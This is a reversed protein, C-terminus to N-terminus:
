VAPAPEHRPTQVRPGSSTKQPSQNQRRPRILGTYRVALEAMFLALALAAWAPWFSQLSWRAPVDRARPEGFSGGTATTLQRLANDPTLPGLHAPYGMAVTSQTTMEGATAAFRYRGATEPYYTAAYQNPAIRELPLPTEGDEPGVSLTPILGDAAGSLTLNATFGDGRRIIDLALDGREVAPLFQRIAQSWLAPYSPMAQWQQSWPGAAETTLALVQGAGYRWSALLPMPEGKSDPVVMSLSAEPKPTTLVFGDIPPMQAPLGRLFPEDRAAWLPQTTGQEIPSGSLLMAEQSLISPLAAFDDTAHFTGGGLRAIREILTREAGKGISVSSVTIGEARIDALLGPFDAPQSLGDTMVIIHRAPTEVGRLMDLAAKLGPYISTGGGPDVNSLAASAIAPDDIRQLPLVINPDSDFVVIGVQSNRNLLRVAALTAQKAIDLRTTTAGVPQQMSGSRDLVFVLTAEPADRPVRSSLPSARDLPTELYGGPGFSNPGGLILLGLGQEAVASELLEQQQTTLAIAPVDLLVAGDFGKWDELKYPAQKPELAAGTIGQSTLWDLFAASRMPDNAIVAVKGAPRADIITSLTNNAPDTDDATVTLTYEAAGEAMDSLMTEVRNDGATLAAQQEVLVVGEREFRLTVRTETTAHVIGTLAVTDGAYVPTPAELASVYLADDTALAPQADVFIQRETLAAALAAMAAPETGTAGSVIIRGPEGWPLSAAALQIAAPIAGARAPSTADTGTISPVPAAIITAEGATAPGGPALVTATHEGARQWPIGIDLLALTVAVLALARLALTLRRRTSLPNANRLGEAQLFREPGRGSIIAEAILALIVLGLLIPWLALPFAAPQPLDESAALPLTPAAPNIALLRTLNGASLEYLGAQEPVFDAAPLPAPENPWDLRRITGGAFRADLACREGITCNPQLQGQPALGLWHILNAVFVPLGSQQPWNSRRPDFALRIDYGNANPTATILPVEGARLLVDANDAPGIAQAADISLTSWAIDHMLPHASAVFTPSQASLPPLATGSVGANGIWLVNSEPQRAVQRNDVVVLGFQSLDGPLGEAQYIAAGDIAKLATLLPQEGGGVYLIDLPAPEARTVFWASNDFLAADDALAVSVIGPGPLNLNITFSKTQPGTDQPAETATSGITKRTWELPTAKADPAYSVILETSPLDDLQVNGSLTWRNPENQRPALQATLAANPATNGLTVTEQSVDALGAQPPAEDSYIVLRTQEGPHLLSQVVPLLAPWDAAGDSAHISAVAGAIAEGGLPHRAVLPAATGALSILSIKGGSAPDRMRDLLQAKALSLRDAGDQMTQMSGSRDVVFIWHDVKDGRFLLPQALAAALAALALLQLLLAWSPRPWQLIRNRRAQGMGIERWIRLSPVNITQRRRIHFALIILGLSLLILSLPHLLVM